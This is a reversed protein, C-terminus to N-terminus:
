GEPTEKKKDNGKNVKNRETKSCKCIVTKKLNLKASDDEGEDDNLVQKRVAVKNSLQQFEVNPTTEKLSAIYGWITQLEEISSVSEIAKFKGDLGLSNWETSDPITGGVM